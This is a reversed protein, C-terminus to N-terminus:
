ASVIRVLADGQGTEYGYNCEYILYMIGADKDYFKRLGITIGTEPHVIPMATIYDAGPQPGLYRIGMAIASPNCAFGVLNESNSPINTCEYINRFGAVNQMLGSKMVDGGYVAKSKLGEDKLLENYYSANLVLSRNAKALNGDVLTKIDVVSDYDFLAHGKTLKSSFNANTVESMVDAMVAAALAEGAQYGMDELRIMSSNAYQTDNLMVPSYKHDSMTVAIGTVAGGANDSYKTTGATFNHAADASVLPVNITYEDTDNFDIAMANLPFMYDTFAQLAADSVVSDVLAAAITAM